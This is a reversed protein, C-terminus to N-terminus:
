YICIIYFAKLNYWFLLEFYLTLIYSYKNYLQELIKYRNENNEFKFGILFKHLSNFWLILIVNIFVFISYCVLNFFFLEM